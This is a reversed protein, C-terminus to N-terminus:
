IHSVLGMKHHVKNASIIKHDGMCYSIDNQVKDEKNLTLQEDRYSHYLSLAHHIRYLPNVYNHIITHSLNLIHVYINSLKDHEQYIYQILLLNVLSHIHFASHLLVDQINM